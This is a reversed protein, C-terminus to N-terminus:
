KSLSYMRGFDAIGIGIIIISMPLKAAEVILDKTDNMDEIKGDTLIIFIYYNLPDEKTQKEVIDITNRLIPKFITPGVLIIHNLSEQYIAKVGDLEKVQADKKGNLSFCHSVKKEGPPIGGFGLVSIMQNPSYEKLINGLCHMSKYYQNINLNKNHLSTNTSPDGNSSTFDIAIGFSLKLGKRIQDVFSKRTFQTYTINIKGIINDINSIKSPNSIISPQRSIALKQVQKINFLSNRKTMNESMYKVHKSKNNNNQIKDKYEFFDLNDVKNMDYEKENLNEKPDKLGKLNGLNNESRQKLHKAQKYIGINENNSNSQSPFMVHSISHRSFKSLKKKPNDSKDNDLTLNDPTNSKDSHYRPSTHYNPSDIIINTPVDSAAEDINVVDFRLSSKTSLLNNLNDKDIIVQGFCNNNEYLLLIIQMINADKILQEHEFIFNAFTIVGKGTVENSKYIVQREDLFKETLLEYRLRNSLTFIHNNRYDVSLSNLVKNQKETTRKINLSIEQKRKDNTNGRYLSYEGKVLDLPFYLKDLSILNVLNITLESTKNDSFYVILRLFQSREFLFNIEFEESFIVDMDKNPKYKKTYGLTFFDNPNETNTYLVEVLFDCCKHINVDLNNIEITFRFKELKDKHTISISNELESHSNKRKLLQFPYCVDDSATPNRYVVAEFEDIIVANNLDVSKDKNYNPQNDDVIFIESLHSASKYAKERKNLRPISSTSKIKDRTVNNSNYKVKKSLNEKDGDTNFNFKIDKHSQLKNQEQELEKIKNASGASDRKKFVEKFYNSFENYKELQEAKHLKELIINEDHFVNNSGISQFIRELFNDSTGPTSM